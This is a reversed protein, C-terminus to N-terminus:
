YDKRQALDQIPKVDLQDRGVIGLLHAGGVDGSLQERAYTRGLSRNRDQGFRLRNRAIYEAHPHTGVEIGLAYRLLEKSM